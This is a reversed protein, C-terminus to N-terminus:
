PLNLKPEKISIKLLALAVTTFPVQNLQALQDIQEYLKFPIRLTHIKYGQSSSYSYHIKGIKDKDVNNLLMVAATAFRLGNNQAFKSIKDYLAIPFRIRRVKTLIEQSM